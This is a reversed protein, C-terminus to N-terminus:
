CEEDEPIKKLTKTRETREEKEKLYKLANKILSKTFSNNDLDKSNSFDVIRRREDLSSYESFNGHLKRIVALLRVLKKIDVQNHWMKIITQFLQSLLISLIYDNTDKQQDVSLYRTIEVISDELSKIRLALGDMFEDFSIDEKTEPDSAVIRASSIYTWTDDSM